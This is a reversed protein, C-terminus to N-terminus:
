EIFPDKLHVGACNSDNSVDFRDSDHPLTRIIESLNQDSVDKFICFVVVVEVYNMHQIGVIWHPYVQELKWFANLPKNASTPPKQNQNCCVKPADHVCENVILVFRVPERWDVLKHEENSRNLMKDVQANANRPCHHNIIIGGKVLYCISIPNDEKLVIGVM